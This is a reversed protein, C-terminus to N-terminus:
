ESGQYARLIKGANYGHILEGNILLLPVGKGGLQDYQARAEKSAEIDYEVFDINNKRMLNRAKKCYGCWKTAYLIVQGELAEVETAVPMVSPTSSFIRGIDDWRQIVVILAIFVILNRM